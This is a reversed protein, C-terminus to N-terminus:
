HRQPPKITPCTHPKKQTKSVDFKDIFFDRVYTEFRHGLNEINLGRNALNKLVANKYQTYSKKFLGENM